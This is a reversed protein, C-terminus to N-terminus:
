SSDSEKENRKGNEWVHFRDFTGSARECDSEFEERECFVDFTKMESDFCIELSGFEGQGHNDCSVVHIDDNM